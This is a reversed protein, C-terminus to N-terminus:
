DHINLLHLSSNVVSCKWIILTCYLFLKGQCGRYRCRHCCHKTRAKWLQGDDWLEERQGACYVWRNGAPLFLEFNTLLDYQYRWFHMYTCLSVPLYTIESKRQLVSSSTSMEQLDFKSRTHVSVAALDCSSDEARLVSSVQAHLFLSLLPQFIQTPM